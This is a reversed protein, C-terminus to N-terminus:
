GMSSDYPQVEGFQSLDPIVTGDEVDFLILDLPPYDYEIGWCPVINTLEECLRDYSGVAQMDIGFNAKLNVDCNTITIRM